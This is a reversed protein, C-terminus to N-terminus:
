EHSIPAPWELHELICLATSLVEPSLASSVESSGPTERRLLRVVEAQASRGRSTFDRQILLCYFLAAHTRKVLLVLSFCM